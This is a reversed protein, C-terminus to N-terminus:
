GPVHKIQLIDFYRHEHVMKRRAMKKPEGLFFNGWPFPAHHYANIVTKEMQKQVFLASCESSKEKAGGL